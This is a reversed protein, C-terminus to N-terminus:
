EDWWDDGEDRKRKKKRPEEREDEKGRGSPVVKGAKDKRAVKGAAKKAKIRVKVEEEQAVQVNLKLNDDLLKAAVALGLTKPKGEGGGARAEQLARERKKMGEKWTGTEWEKHFKRYVAMTARADDVSSHEGDNATQFGEIGLVKKVLVRLAPVKSGAVQRIPPFTQTDRTQTRPHSLFLAELDNYVAHGVLIVKKKKGDKGTGGELLDCVFRQAEELDVAGEGELDRERVGSVWTRYDTVKEKTRVFTDYVVRGEWDVISIRALASQSGLPGVGVMECDIAYYSTNHSSIPSTPPLHSLLLSTLDGGKAATTSPSRPLPAELQKTPESPVSSESRKRKRNVKPPNSSNTPKLSQM